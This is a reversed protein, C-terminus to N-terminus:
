RSTQTADREGGNRAHLKELRSPDEIVGIAPYSSSAHSLHCLWLTRVRVGWYGMPHALRGQHKGYM